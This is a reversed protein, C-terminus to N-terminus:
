LRTTIERPNVTVKRGEGGVRDGTDIMYINGAKDNSLKDDLRGRQIQGAQRYLSWLGGLM